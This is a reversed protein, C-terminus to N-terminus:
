VEEYEADIIQDFDYKKSGRNRYFGPDCVSYSMLTKRLKNCCPRFMAYTLGGSVVSGVYPIGSAITDAFIQKTMRVGITSAVKKVAPYVMGKTLAKQALKKSVNQAVTNALKNLAGEAGQVGFMAGIFIMLVDKTESDINEEKIDFQPFGYLYALKQLVRLIHAFYSTIDATSAALAAAPMASSPLSAIVSISTVRKTEFDIVKQSIKNILSKEIGAQAPNDVIAKEIVDQHCYRRLENRLFDDRNVRVYPLRLAQAFVNEFNLEDKIKSVISDM